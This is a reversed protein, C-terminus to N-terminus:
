ISKKLDCNIQHEEILSAVLNKADLGYQWFRKASQLGFEKALELQGRRQGTGVHGGNRGSAGWAVKEAELLAVRVGQKALHLACSLGTYGGGIICVDAAEEGQLSAFDDVLTATASYYSNIYESIKPKTM